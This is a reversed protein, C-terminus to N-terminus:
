DQDDKLYKARGEQWPQEEAPDASWCSSINRELCEQYCREGLLKRTKDLNMKSAHRNGTHLMFHLFYVKDVEDVDNYYRAVVAPAADATSAVHKPVSKALERFFKIVSFSEEGGSVVGLIRKLKAVIDSGELWPYVLFGSHVSVVLVLPEKGKAVIILKFPSEDALFVVVFRAGNNPHRHEFQVRFRQASKMSQYLVQLENLKIPHVTMDGTHRRRGVASRILDM